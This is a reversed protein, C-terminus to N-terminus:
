CAKGTIPHKRTEGGTQNQRRATPMHPEEAAPKNKAAHALIGFATKIEGDSFKSADVGRSNLVRTVVAKRRSNMTKCNELESVLAAKDDGEPEGEVVAAEDDGYETREKAVAEQSEESQLTALAAEIEKLKTQLDAITAAQSAEKEASAEGANKIEADKESETDAKLKKAEDADAANTFHYVKGGIEIDVPKEKKEDKNLIRVDPGCRGQGKPLLLVHNFRLGRQTAEYGEGPTHDLGSDYAASVEVLKGEKIATIADAHSILLDCLIEDDKKQPAGAVSGVTLGDTMTNEADRWEHADVIVPKGELTKLAEDTFESPDIREHVSDKGNYRAKLDDPMDAVAYPYSGGKLVCATVRLLGDPDVRWNVIRIRPQM